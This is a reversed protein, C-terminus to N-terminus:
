MKGGTAKYLSIQDIYCDTKSAVVAKNLVLLTEKQQLLDLNSIIGQQYRKKMYNYDAKQMDYSKINKRYKDDDLKLNSLSDNVEKIATLNTKYYSQLIQEYKNKSLRLNAKLKGGTFLPLMAQGGLLSLANTWNMPTGLSGTSFFLLGIINIKPLFEKKAVRVDIGAKEVMKEAALYDPRQDIIESSIEKPIAKKYVLEDYSVRKIENINNPSEGILVALENLMIERAKKLDSLDIQSLVYSKEARTLDATSTIGERNRSKMLEYIQQRDTIIENQIDILKDLKIINFYAGGVASAISLYAAREQFKSVEHLKKVSKTKDHNKLFLDLEYNMMIPMGFSSETNRGSALEMGPVAIEPAKYLFESAGISVNPLENSFQIKVYQRAEEVKLTAIKLDYNNNIAKIIYGELYEDNYNKWWDFNVDEFKYQTVQSQILNNKKNFSYAVCPIGNIVFLGIILALSIIKKM